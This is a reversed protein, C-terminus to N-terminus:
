FNFVVGVNTGISSAANFDQWVAQARIGISDTLKFEVGGGLRIGSGNDSDGIPEESINLWGYGALIYLMTKEIVLGATAEFGAAENLHITSVDGNLDTFDQKGANVDVFGQLGLVVNDSVSARYGVIGGFSVGNVKDSLGDSNFSNYGINLGVYPGAFLSTQAVAATCMTLLLTVALVIKRM